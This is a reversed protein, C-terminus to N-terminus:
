ALLLKVEEEKINMEPLDVSIGMPNGGKEKMEHKNYWEFSFFTMSNNPQTLSLFCLAFRM